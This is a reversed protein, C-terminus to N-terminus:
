WMPCELIKVSPYSDNDEDEQSISCYRRETEEVTDSNEPCYKAKEGKNIVKICNDQQM